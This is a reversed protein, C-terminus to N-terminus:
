KNEIEDGVQIKGGSESIIKCAKRNGNIKAVEIEGIKKSNRRVVLREGMQYPLDSEFLAYKGQIKIITAPFDTSENISSIGLSSKLADFFQNELIGKSPCIHWNHTLNSEFGEIHTNVKISTQTESLKNVFINYTYRCGTWTGLLISPNYAIKKVPELISNDAV